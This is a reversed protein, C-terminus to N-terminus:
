KVLSPDWNVNRANIFGDAYLQIGTVGYCIPYCAQMQTTTIQPSYTERMRANAQAILDARKAPDLEKNSQAILDNLVQDGHHSNHADNYIRNTIHEFPDGSVYNNSALFVDYDGTKRRNTLDSSEVANIEVNFGVQKLYDQIPTLLAKGMPIGTHTLLTFSEGNYSSEALLQKAKEPNYEWPTYSDTYGVAGTPIVGTPISGAGLTYDVLAQRDIALSFAERVKADAFVSGEECQFQIYHFIGVDQNVMEIKNETGAYMGLMDRAVGGTALYADVDGALQGNIATSPELIHKLVVEELTTEYAAWSEPFKKLKTYQGDLWEVLQWPGTGVAHQETWLEEGFEAWAGDPIIYTNSLAFETAGFAETLTIEVTYKDVANVGALYGWYTASCALLKNDILRQYTAVVDASDFEEGNHFKVGERLKFTWTLGDESKTWETALAPIYGGQRDSEILADYVMWNITYSPFNFVNHPDLEKINESLALSITTKPASPDAATSASNGGGCATLLLMMALLFAAVRMTHKM